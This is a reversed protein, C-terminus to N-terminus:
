DIREQTGPQFHFQAVSVALKKEQDFHMFIPLARGNFASIGTYDGFFVKDDCKFAPQDIPYNVFTKGGDVSRALVLKTMAGETDRRDYFVVNVSGDAPDVSMWTFFQEKANKLPDDNVRVAPLWTEGSPATIRPGEAIEDPM